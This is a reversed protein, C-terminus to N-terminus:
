IEEDAHAQIWEKVTEEAEIGVGLLCNSCIICGEVTRDMIRKHIVELKLKMLDEPIPASQSYDWFYCGAIAQQDPRLMKRLRLLREDLKVIDAASWTWFTIVDFYEICDYLAPWDLDYSVLWLKLDHKHLEERVTKLRELTMRPGSALFFDDLVCGKVKDCINKQHIVESVDDGGNDNRKSGGDGIGSWVIRDFNEALVRTEPDFPPEPKGHMVVRCCNPIGLIKAGEITEITNHGPLKYSDHTGATEGWIWLTDRFKM